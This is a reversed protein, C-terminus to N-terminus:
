GEHQNPLKACNHDRTAGQEHSPLRGYRRRGMAFPNKLFPANELLPLASNHGIEWTTRVPRSPSNRSWSLSLGNTWADSMSTPDRSALKNRPIAQLNSTLLVGCVNKGCYNRCNPRVLERRAMSTEAEPLFWALSPRRLLCQRSRTSWVNCSRWSGYKSALIQRKLSCTSLLLANGTWDARM